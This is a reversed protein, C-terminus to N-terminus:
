KVYGCGEPRYFMKQGTYVKCLLPRDEYIDCMNDSNLHPCVYPITIQNKTVECGKKEYYEIQNKSLTPVMFILQRCCNGCKHCTM